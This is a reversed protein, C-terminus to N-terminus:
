TSPYLAPLEDSDSRHIAKRAADVCRRLASADYREINAPQYLHANLADVATRANADFCFRTTADPLASAYRVKLWADFASRIGRADGSGCERRFARYLHSEDRR